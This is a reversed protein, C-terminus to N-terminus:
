LRARRVGALGVGTMTWEMERGTVRKAFIEEGIEDVLGFSGTKLV